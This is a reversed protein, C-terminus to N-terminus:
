MTKMLVVVATVTTVTAVAAVSAVASVAAVGAVTVVAVVATGRSFIYRESSSSIGSSSGDSTSSSSSSSSSISSTGSSSNSSNSSRNEVSNNSCSLSETLIKSEWGDFEFLEIQQNINFIIENTTVLLEKCQEEIDNINKCVHRGEKKLSVLKNRLRTINNKCEKKKIKLEKKIRITSPDDPTANNEVQLIRTNIKRNKIILKHKKNDYKEIKKIINDIIESKRRLQQNIKTLIDTAHEKKSM